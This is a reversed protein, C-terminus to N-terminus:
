MRTENEHYKGKIREQCSNKKRSRMIWFQKHFDSLLPPWRFKAVCNLVMNKQRPLKSTDFSLPYCIECNCWIAVIDIAIM